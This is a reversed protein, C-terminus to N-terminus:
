QQANKLAEIYRAGIQLIIQKWRIGGPGAWLKQTHYKKIGDNNM